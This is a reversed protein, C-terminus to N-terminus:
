PHVDSANQRDTIVQHVKWDKYPRRYKSFYWAIITSIMPTSPATWSKKVTNHM